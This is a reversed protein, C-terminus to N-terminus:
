KVWHITELRLFLSITFIDPKYSVNKALLATGSLAAVPLYNVVKTYLYDAVTQFKAIRGPGSAAIAANILPEVAKDSTSTCCATGAPQDPADWIYANATSAGDGTANRHKIQLISFDVKSLDRKSFLAANHAASAVFKSTVNFGVADLYSAVADALDKARIFADQSYLNIPTDIKVGDAKAQALLLRAQTPDYKWMWEYKPTLMKSDPLRLRNGPPVVQYDAIAVDKMVTKAITKRDIAYGIAKRVRIDNFPAQDMPLRYFIEAGQTYVETKDGKKIMSPDISLAINSEGTRVGNARISDDSRFIVKVHQVQPAKGWYGSWGDITLSKGRDWATFKYPGTGIPHDDLTSTPTSPAALDIFALENPLLPDVKSTKITIQLPGTASITYAVGAALKSTSTCPLSKNNMVRDLSIKANAGTLPTGDQWTVGPRLSFVWTTPSAQRWKTALLPDLGNPKTNLVTLAQTVNYKLVVAAANENNCTDINTPELSVAITLVRSSFDAAQSPAALTMFSGMLMLSTAIAVPRARRGGLYKNGKM